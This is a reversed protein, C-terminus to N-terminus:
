LDMKDLKYEIAENSDEKEFLDCPSQLDSPGLIRAIVPTDDYIM